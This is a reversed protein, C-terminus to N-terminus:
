RTVMRDLVDFFDPYSVAACGADRIRTAGQAGTAVLPGTMFILYNEPDFAMTEPQVNEWYIRLAIGRGGLYKDSYDQTSSFGIHSTNLNVRLIKGSWGYM